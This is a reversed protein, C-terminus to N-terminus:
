VTAGRSTAVGAVLIAKLDTLVAHVLVLMCMAVVASPVILVPLRWPPVACAVPCCSLAAEGM